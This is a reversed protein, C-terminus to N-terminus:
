AIVGYLEDAMRLLAERCELDATFESPIAKLGLYAGLINGTVAGTSDSDGSHNVAAVMARKFDHSYKLACYVAIALTEEAIWGEGLQRIAQEDGLNNKEALGIAKDILKLMTPLHRQGSFDIELALRMDLVIERLSCDPQCCALHVVHVLGAAPIYGLEHGHTLAAAIAGARDAVQIILGRKDDAAKASYGAGWLGIPAVRMVGGCGKSDNIPHELSGLVAGRLARLCTNGPARCAYLEPVNNLWTNQKAAKRSGEQTALWDQYYEWVCSSWAGADFEGDLRFAKQSRADLLAAGTYLTMQTDDSILALRSRPDLAYATIGNPGYQSVIARYDKFEVAYGLADGCAGGILCGRFKDLLDM